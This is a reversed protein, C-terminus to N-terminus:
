PMQGLLEVCLKHGAEDTPRIRGKRRLTALVAASHASILRPQLRGPADGSGRLLGGDIILDAGLQRGLASFDVASEDPLAAVVLAHDVTRYGAELLAMVCGNEAGSAARNSGGFSIVAVTIKPKETPAAAPPPAV